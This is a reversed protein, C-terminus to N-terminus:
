KRYVYYVDGLFQKLSFYIGRYQFFLPFLLKTKKSILFEKRLKNGYAFYEVISQMKESCKREISYNLLESYNFCNREAQSIREAINRAPLSTVNTGSMRHMLQAKHYLGCVGDITAMRWFFEDHSWNDSYLHRIIELYRKKVAMSCGPPHPIYDAINNYTVRELRGDLSGETREFGNPYFHIVSTGVVELWSNTNFLMVVEKTKDPLWIDDQDCFFVIDGKILSLGQYFNKRYGINKDNIFLHWTEHLKHEVIYDKVIDVTKDSSCDDIIIVEDVQLKQGILSDLQEKIYKEGNYTAMLVSIM